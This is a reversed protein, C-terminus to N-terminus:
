SDMTRIRYADFGTGTGLRGARMRGHGFHVTVVGDPQGPLIWVPAEVRRGGRSIEVVDGSQVELREALAASVLAANDWTIHTLPKPLEQLWANGAFRGDFITPDPRFLVEVDDGAAREGAPPPPLVLNQRLTPAAERSASGALLGDHLARRWAKEFGNEGLRQKWHERVIEYGGAGPGELLVRLIEHASKGGHLPEILPQVISLTGDLSRVDSWAELPHAEPVHWHCLASTEDEELALHVRLRARALREAFRLDAPATHVPNGGLIVLLDVTGQDLDRSLDALSQLQNVPRAEVAATHIVTKGANGLAQNLIHALAHLHPPQEGGAVVISAGRSRELDEVLAGLWKEPVEAPPADEGEIAAVGLRRALTRAFRELAAPALSLRHDAAAGTLSPTCELAYIRSWRGPAIDGRRRESLDRAHRVAGPMGHLFDADLSLVVDARDFRYTTEFDGGFATRSGERANDRGAPEWQHWRALPWKALFAELQSALTPSTVTETLIRVGAGQRGREAELATALALLFAPWSSVQGRDMVAQSREPDYLSLIAAQTFADTAGLSAPHLPNGEIKTPRGTHSEVLVGMALGRLSLATAYTLEAGEVLEEPQKVYPVIKETPQRTCSVGGALALSAGMLHLFRRRDIGAPHPLDPHDHDELRGEM